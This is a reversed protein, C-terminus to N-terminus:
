GKWLQTATIKSAYVDTEQLMVLLLTGEAALSWACARQKLLPQQLVKTRYNLM